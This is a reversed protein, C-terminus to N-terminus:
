ALSNEGSRHLDARVEDALFAELRRETRTLRQMVVFVEAHRSLEELNRVLLKWIHPISNEIFSLSTGPGVVGM